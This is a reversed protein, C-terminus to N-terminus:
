MVPPQMQQMQQMQQAERQMDQKRKRIRNLVKRKGKLYKEPIQEVYLEADDLIGRSVLNDLTQMQTIESWYASSGVDVSLVMNAGGLQGFDVNIDVAEPLEEEVMIDVVEQAQTGAMRQGKLKPLTMEAIIDPDSVTVTRIGYYARMMDVMIRVYKEVFDFFARRQLELPIGTAQQVAIIASTNDPRVNGLAADSAGMFDRTMSIISDITQMVQASASAGHVISAVADTVGGIGGEIRIAEGVKNSWNKVRQGDYAYKPFATMEESRIMMAALRNVAIQNPILGTIVAEGHYSSKVYEWPMWAVPYLKLATDEPAKVVADATTKAAWVTGDKKWLKILVTVIDSNDGSEGQYEDADARIMDPDEGNEKAERKVDQLQRRQAIIIYPQKQEDRIYPNGFHVNINEAIEARIDGKADQGTEADPDFFLYMCGDGDVAANRIIERHMSKTGAQEIVRNIEEALVMAVTKAEKTPRHPTLSIGVDESMIMAVQYSVVRKLFNLVPKPLDPANLGVWQRGLYFNENKKVNDYLGISQKYAIGKEYEEWVKRPEFADKKM